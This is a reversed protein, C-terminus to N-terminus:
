FSWLAELSNSYNFPRISAGYTSAARCELAGAPARAPACVTQATAFRLPLLQPQSRSLTRVEALSRSRGLAKRKGHVWAGLANGARAGPRAECGRLRQRRALRSAAAPAAPQQTSRATSRNIRRLLLLLCRVEPTRRRRPVWWSASLTEIRARPRRSAAPAAVAM